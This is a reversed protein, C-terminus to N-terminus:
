WQMKKPPCTRKSQAGAPVKGLDWSEAPIAQWYAVVMKELSDLLRRKTGNYEMKAALDEGFDDRFQLQNLEGINTM